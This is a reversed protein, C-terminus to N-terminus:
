LFVYEECVQLAAKGLGTGQLSSSIYFTTLSYVGDSPSTHYVPDGTWADLSIHGIPVFTPMPEDRSVSRGLISKCTNELAKAERPFAAVHRELLM